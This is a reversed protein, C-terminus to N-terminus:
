SSARACGRASVHRKSGWIELRHELDPFPNACVCLFVFEFARVWACVCACENV